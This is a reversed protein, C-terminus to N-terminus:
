RNPDDFKNLFEKITDEMDEGKLNAGELAMSTTLFEITRVEDLDEESFMNNIRRRYNEISIKAYQFSITRLNEIFEKNPMQSYNIEDM